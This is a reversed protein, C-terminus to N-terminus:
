EEQHIIKISSGCEPCKSSYYWYKVQPIRSTYEPYLYNYYEDRKLEFICGCKDCTIRYKKNFKNGHKIIKM